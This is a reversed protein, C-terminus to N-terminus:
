RCVAGTVVVFAAVASVEPAAPVVTVALAVADVAASRAKAANGAASGGLLALLPMLGRSLLLLQPLLLVM